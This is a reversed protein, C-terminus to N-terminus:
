EKEVIITVGDHRTTFSNIPNDSSYIKHHLIHVSGRQSIFGLKIQFFLAEFNFYINELGTQFQLLLLVKLWWHFRIFLMNNSMTHM